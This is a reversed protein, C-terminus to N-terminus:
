YSEALAEAALVAEDLTGRMHVVRVDVVGKQATYVDAMDTTPDYNITAILQRHKYLDAQMGDTSDLEGFLWTQIGIEMKAQREAQVGRQTEIDEVGTYLSYAGGFVRHEPTEFFTVQEHRDM